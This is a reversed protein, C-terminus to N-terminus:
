TTEEKRKSTLLGSSKKLAQYGYYLGGRLVEKGANKLFSPGSLPNIPELLAEPWMQRIMKRYLFNRTGFNKKVSLLTSLLKRNNFPSFEEIAIDQEASYIAGWNGYTQEWEFITLPNIGWKEHDKIGKLWADFSNIVYPNKGLKSYRALFAGTVERNPHYDYYAERAIESYNGSINVKGQSHLYHQYIIRTKALDRMQVNQRNIRVFQEDMQKPTPHIHFALDLRSLLRSPIAVDTSDEELGPHLSIYYYVQSSIKRSAALLIRSDWGATVPLMVESRRAIAEISGILMRSALSVAEEAALLQLKAVPWFREAKGSQMDLYHNPILHKIGVFSTNDGPWLNEESQFPKSQLFRRLDENEDVKADTYAALTVAQSACWVGDPQVSYFVQRMGCPDHFLKIKKGSKYLLIWRGGCHEVGELLQEFSSCQQHIEHLIEENSWEPHEPDILYGLLTLQSNQRSSQVVQLDPHVSLCLRDDLAIRQWDDMGVYRTGIIFQRRYVLRETNPIM